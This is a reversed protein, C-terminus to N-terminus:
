LQRNLCCRLFNVLNHYKVGSQSLIIFDRYHTAEINLFAVSKIIVICLQTMLLLFWVVCSM